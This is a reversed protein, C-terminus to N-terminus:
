KMKKYCYYCYMLAWRASCHFNCNLTYLANSFRSSYTEKNYLILARFFILIFHSKLISLTESTFMFLMKTYVFHKNPKEVFFMVLSIWVSGNYLFFLFRRSGWIKKRDWFDLDPLFSSTGSTKNKKTYHTLTIDNYAYEFIICDLM